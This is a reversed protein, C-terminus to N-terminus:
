KKEDQIIPYKTGTRIKPLRTYFLKGTNIIKNIAKHIKLLIM